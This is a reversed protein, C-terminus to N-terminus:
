AKKKLEKPLERFSVALFRKPTTEADAIMKFIGVEGKRESESYIYGDPNTRKKRIDRMSYETRQVIGDEKFKWENFILIHGHLNSDKLFDGLLINKDIIFKVVELVEEDDNKFNERFVEFLIEVCNDRNDQQIEIGYLTSVIELSRKSYEEETLSQNNLIEFRREIIPKFFAGEGIAPELFTKSSDYTYEKIGDVDLMEEVIDAPTFVEGFDKVREKSKILVEEAM